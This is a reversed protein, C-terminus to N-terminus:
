LDNKKLPIKRENAPSQSSNNNNNRKASYDFSTWQKINIKTWKNKWLIVTGIKETTTKLATM